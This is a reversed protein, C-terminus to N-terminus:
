IPLSLNLGTVVGRRDDPRFIYFGVTTVKSPIRLPHMDLIIEGGFSSVSRMGAVPGAGRGAGERFRAFDYYLNMRVRSFYLLSGIGGDPYWVPFQYDASVAAYRTGARDYVAGRPYLEKYFFLHDGGSQHQLNGRLMLSHHRGAGPLYARGFLSLIRGFDDRFPASVTTFRLAYGWRPLLDRVAMRSNDTYGLGAVLRQFGRDCGMPRVVLANIHRLEAVPTLTRIRHGSSLTMPLSAYLTLQFHRKLSGPAENREGYVLQNGGGYDFSLSFRPALGAYHIAGRWRSGRGGAYGYALYGTTSSLLDQSMVTAGFSVDIHNEDAIRFPNFDWPAWSHVDFLHLGKRFRRVPTGERFESSLTVTDVNMVDWKRRPPNVTNEPLESYPM